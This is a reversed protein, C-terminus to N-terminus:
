HEEGIAVFSISDNTLHVDMSLYAINPFYSELINKIDCKIIDANKMCNEIWKSTEKMNDNEYCIYRGDSYWGSSNSSSIYYGVTGSAFDKLGEWDKDYRIHLRAPNTGGAYMNIRNITKLDGSLNNNIDNIVDFFKVIMERVDSSEPLQKNIQKKNEAQAKRASNYRYIEREDMVFGIFGIVAFIIIIIVVVSM